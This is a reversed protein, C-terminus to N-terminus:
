QKWQKYPIINFTIDGQKEYYYHVQLRNDSARSIEGWTGGKSGGGVFLLEFDIHDQELLQIIM